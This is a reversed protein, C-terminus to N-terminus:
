LSLILLVLPKETHIKDTFTWFKINRSGCIKKAHTFKWVTANFTSIFEISHYCSPSGWPSRIFFCFINIDFLGFCLHDIFDEHHKQNNIPVLRLILQQQLKLFYRSKHSLSISSVMHFYICLKNPTIARLFIHLLLSGSWRDM